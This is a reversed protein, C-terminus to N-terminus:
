EQEYELEAITIFHFHFHKTGGYILQIEYSYTNLPCQFRSQSGRVIIDKIEADYKDYFIIKLILGDPNKSTSTLRVFYMGEGDILPLAPEVRMMQYKTKSFWQKVVTGPPMFRNEFEVDVPSHMKIASGYLYTNSVYENWLVKWVNKTKWVQKAM